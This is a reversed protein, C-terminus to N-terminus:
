YCYSPNITIMIHLLWTTSHVHVVHFNVVHIVYVKVVHVNVVHIVHVKVVHIVHVNVVYFLKLASTSIPILPPLPISCPLM